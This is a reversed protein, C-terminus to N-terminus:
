YPVQVDWFGHSFVLGSTELGLATSDLYVYIQLKIALNGRMTVSDGIGILFRTEYFLLFLLLYCVYSYCRHNYEIRWMIHTFPCMCGYQHVYMIVFIHM